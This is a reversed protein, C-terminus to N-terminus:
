FWIVFGSRFWICIHFQVYLEILTKSPAPIIISVIPLPSLIISVNPIIVFEAYTKNLETAPAPFSLRLMFNM